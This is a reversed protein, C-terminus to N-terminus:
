DQCNWCYDVIVPVLLDYGVGVFVVLFSVDRLHVRVGSLVACDMLFWGM